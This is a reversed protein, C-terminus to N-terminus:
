FDELGWSLKRSATQPIFLLFSLHSPHEDDITVIGASGDRSQYTAQLSSTAASGMFTRQTDTCGPELNFNQRINLDGKELLKDATAAMIRVKGLLKFTTNGTTM